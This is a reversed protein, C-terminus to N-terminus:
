FNITKLEDLEKNSIAYNGFHQESSNSFSKIHKIVQKKKSKEIQKKKKKAIMFSM